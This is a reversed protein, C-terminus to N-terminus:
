RLFEDIKKQLSRSDPKTLSSFAVVETGDRNILYKYFNWKPRTGSAKVLQKFFPNADEGTVATKGVMPFDVGYNLQCFSAIEQDSGPEQGGFENSPFGIIVFGRDKLRAYLKQLGEYQPTFGCQSATNVALIVKGAYQCLHVPRGDLLAPFTHDLLPPCAAAAAAPVVSVSLVGVAGVWRQLLSKM